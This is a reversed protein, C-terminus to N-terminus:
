REGRFPVLRPAPDAGRAFQLIAVSEHALLDRGHEAAEGLTTGQTGDNSADRFAVAISDLVHHELAPRVEPHRRIKVDGCAAHSRKGPNNRRASVVRARPHIRAILKEIQVQRPVSEDHQSVIRDSLALPSVVPIRVPVLALDSARHRPFVIHGAMQQEQDALVEGWYWMQSPTRAM